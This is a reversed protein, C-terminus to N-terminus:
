INSFYEQVKKKGDKIEGFSDNQNLPPSPSDEGGIRELSAHSASAQLLQAVCPSNKDSDSPEVEPAVILKKPFSKM